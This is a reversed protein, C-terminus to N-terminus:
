RFLKFERRVKNGRTLKLSEGRYANPNYIRSKRWEVWKAYLTINDTVTDNEFDWANEFEADKYWGDFTNELKEPTSPETITSGYEVGTYPSVQSGGNSNFTVTLTGRTWDAYVDIDDLTIDEFTQTFDFPTVKDSAYWGKFVYGAKTPEAPESIGSQGEFVVDTDYPTAAEFDLYIDLLTAKRAWKYDSPLDAPVVKSALDSYVNSFDSASNKLFGFRAYIVDTGEDTSWDTYYPISIDTMGDPINFIYLQECGYFMTDAGKSVGSFNGKLEVVGLNSCNHFLNMVNTVVATTDQEKNLCISCSKLSQCDFFMKALSSFGLVTTDSDWYETSAMNFNKLSSCKEFMGAMMDDDPNTAIINTVKDWLLIAPVTSIEPDYTLFDISELARFNYFMGSSDEDLYIRLPNDQLFNNADAIISINVTKTNADYSAYIDYDSDRTSIIAWDVAATFEFNCNIHEITEDKDYWTADQTVLGKIIANFLQGQILKTAM